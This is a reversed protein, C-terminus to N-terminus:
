SCKRAIIIEGSFTCSPWVLMLNILFLPLSLSLSHSHTRLLSLSLSLSLSINSPRTYCHEHQHHVQKGQTFDCIETRYKIEYKRVKSFNFTRFKISSSFKNKNQPGWIEIYNQKSARSLVFIGEYSGTELWFYSFPYRVFFQLKVTCLSFKKIDLPLLTSLEVAQM